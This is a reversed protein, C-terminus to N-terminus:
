QSSHRDPAAPPVAPAAQPVLQTPPPPMPAPTPAAAVPAPTSPPHPPAPADRATQRRAPAPPAAPAATPRKPPPAPPTGPEAIMISVAPISSASSYDFRSSVTAGPSGSPAAASGTGTTALPPVNSSSPASAVAAVGSGNPQWALAHVGLAAEFARAKMNAAIRSPDRLLRLEACETGNCGRTTLVHAVLGFRDAELARRARELSPRYAPDRDALSVSPALLSVRADVYALASAVAEPTAFLSKECASEVVVSAVADLCALASGPAISRATLDAARAEIARRDTAQERVIIRDVLAYACMAGVLVM